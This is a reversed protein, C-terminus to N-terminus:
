SAASTPTPPPHRRRHLLDLGARRRVRKVPNSVAGPYRETEIAGAPPQGPVRSATVVLEQVRSQSPPTPPAIRHRVPPVPLPPIAPLAMQQPPPPPPPPPAPPGYAPASGAIKRGSSPAQAQDDSRYSAFGLRECAEPTAAGGQPQAVPVTPTALLSLATAASLGLRVPRPSQLM